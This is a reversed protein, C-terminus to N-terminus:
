GITKQRKKGCMYLFVIIHHYLFDVHLSTTPLLAKTTLLHPFVFLSFSFYSDPHKYVFNFFLSLPLLTGVFLLFTCCSKILETQWKGLQNDIYYWNYNTTTKSQRGEKFWHQPQWTVYFSSVPGVLTNSTRFYHNSMLARCKLELHNLESSDCNANCTFCQFRHLMSKCIITNTPTNLTVTTIREWPAFYPSLSVKALKAQM